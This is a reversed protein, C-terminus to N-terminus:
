VRLPGKAKKKSSNHIIKPLTVNLSATLSMPHSGAWGYWNEMYQSEEWDDLDM